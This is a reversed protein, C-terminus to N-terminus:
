EADGPFLDPQTSEAAAKRQGPQPIIGLLELQAIAARPIFVRQTNSRTDPPTIFLGAGEILTRDNTALGELEEGDNFTMRLWIGANRPKTTFRRRLLREPNSSEGSPLERVSCVWKVQDWSIRNVKGTADLLELESTAGLDDAAAYGALWERTFKRVIVPKRGIAM